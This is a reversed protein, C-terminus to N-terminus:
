SPPSPKQSLAAVAAARDPAFEFFTGLRCAEFVTMVDPTVDCLVLAGGHTELRRQVMVLKALFLSYLCDLSGPGLSLVMKRCGDKEILEALENGLANVGQEDIRRHALHVCCVDADRDLKIQRYPREM